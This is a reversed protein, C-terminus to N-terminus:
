LTVGTDPPQQPPLANRGWRSLLVAGLGLFCAVLFIFKDLLHFAHAAIAFVGGPLAVFAAFIGASQLLLLGVAIQVFVGATSLLRQGLIHAFAVYGMVASVFVVLVLLPVLLIGVCTAVLILTALPLCIMAALGMLASRPFAGTLHEEIRVLHQPLFVTLLLACFAFFALWAGQWIVGTFRLALGCAPHDHGSTIHGFPMGISFPIGGGTGVTDGHVKAGPDIETRGGFNVADGHVVAHPGLKLHGGFCVADGKVTGYVDLNGGFVVADKVTEGEDVTVSGGFSVRDHLRGADRGADQEPTPEAPSAIPTPTPTPTAVHLRKVRAPAAPTSSETATQAHLPYTGLLCGALLISLTLTPKM